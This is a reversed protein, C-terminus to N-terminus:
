PLASEAYNNIGLHVLSTVFIGVTVEPIEIVSIARALESHVSIEKISAPITVGTIWPEFVFTNHCFVVM